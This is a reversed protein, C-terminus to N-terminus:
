DFHQYGNSPKDGTTLSAGSGALVRGVPHATTAAFVDTTATAASSASFCLEYDDGSLADDLTAGPARPIASPDIAIRVGSAKAIHGADALLGDSIDIASNAIGRLAIGANLRPQPMYYPKAPHDPVLDALAQVNALVGSRLAAAGGGLPGTVYLTDGVQAGSRCLAQDPPVCGHASVSINLPGRALNGGGIAIGFDKAATAIGRALCRVWETRAEPLTLSVLVHSPSAGMAALDSVSVALARYGILEAGADAPFHVDPVLADVSSVWAEGTPAAVLCADDGPGLLLNDDPAARRIEEVIVDILDFETM